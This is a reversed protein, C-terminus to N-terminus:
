RHSHSGLVPSPPQRSSLPSVRFVTSRAVRRARLNRAAATAACEGHVTVAYQGRLVGPAEAVGAFVRELRSNFYRAMVDMSAKVQVPQDGFLTPTKEAKYFADYGDATGLFAHMRQRWLAPVKGSKSALRKIGTCPRM